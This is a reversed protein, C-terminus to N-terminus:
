GALVFLYSVGELAPLADIGLGASYFTKGNFQRTYPMAFRPNNYSLYVAIWGTANPRLGGIATIFRGFASHQYEFVLDDSLVLDDLVQGIYDRETDPNFSLEGIHITINGGTEVPPLCNAALLFPVSFATAILVILLLKRFSKKM